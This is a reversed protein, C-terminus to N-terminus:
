AGAGRRHFQIIKVVFLFSSITCSVTGEDATGWYGEGVAGRLWRLGRSGM